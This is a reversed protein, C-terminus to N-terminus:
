YFNSHFKEGSIRGHYQEVAIEGKENSIVAMFQAVNGGTGKHNEIGVFGFYFGQGPKRWTM